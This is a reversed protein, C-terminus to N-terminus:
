IECIPVIYITGRQYKRILNIARKGYEAFRTVFEPSFPDVSIPYDFHNLDWIQQMGEEEGIKMIQEFRAFDYENNGKDIKSWNLGERVTTIGLSKLRCYDDRCYEDHKSASLLNLRKRGAALAATCEFGAWIFSTFEPPKIKM